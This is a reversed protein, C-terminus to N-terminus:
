GLKRKFGDVDGHIGMLLQTEKVDFSWIYKDISDLRLVAM